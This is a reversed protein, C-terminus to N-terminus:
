QAQKNELEVIRRKLAAVNRTFGLAPKGDAKTRAALQDRRRTLEEAEATNLAM